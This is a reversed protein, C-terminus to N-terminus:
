KGDIAQGQLAAQAAASAAAPVSASPPQFAALAQELALVDLRALTRRITSVGPLRSVSPPLAAFLELRHEGIWRAIAEPSRQASAMATAILSLLILWRHRRGQRKRYDPVQTLVDVFTTYQAQDMPSEKRSRKFSRELIGSPDITLVHFLGAGFRM